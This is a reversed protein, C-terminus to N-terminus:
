IIGVLKDLFLRAIEKLFSDLLPTDHDRFGCIEDETMKLAEDRPRELYEKHKCFNYLVFVIIQSTNSLQNHKGSLLLM